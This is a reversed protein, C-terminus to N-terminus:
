GRWKLEVVLRDTDFGFPGHNYDKPLGIVEFERGDVTFRDRHGVAVASDVILVL